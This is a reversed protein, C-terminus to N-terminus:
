KRLTGKKKLQEYLSEAEEFSKDKGEEEREKTEAAIKKEEEVLDEASVQVPVSSVKSVESSEGFKEKMAQIISEASTSVQSAEKKQEQKPEEQMSAQMVTMEKNLPVESVEKQFEGEVHKEEKFDEMETEISEEQNEPSEEAIDEEKISESASEPKSESQDEETKNKVAPEETSEEVPTEVVEEEPTEEAEGESLEESKETHLEEEPKEEELVNESEEEKEEKEKKSEVESASEENDENDKNDENVTSTEEEPASIEEIQAEPEKVEEVTSPESVDEEIKEESEVEKVAEKVEAVTDEEKPVKSIEEKEEEKSFVPKDVTEVNASEKLSLAQREAKALIEGATVDNIIDQELALGKADNFAKQILLETTEVTPYAAEIALNMAWQAAQIFNQKYEAEDIHLQKAEFITGKEWVAVLDLGVRMPLINLRTLLGALNRSITDGEKAVVTDSIIALKGGEVKTKIGVSALESIIPGPAFNTPGGSVTIDNPAIQGAKAPAKSKNKQITAYLTFPNDNTFLLAPMGKLKDKIQEINDLGSENLSLELLRKRAMKIKVGQKLLTARMNQLQRAPLNEFNVLGIISYNKLENVLEQVLKKKLESVM